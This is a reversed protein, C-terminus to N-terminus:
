DSGNIGAIEGPRHDVWKEGDWRRMRELMQDYFLRGKEPNAPPRTDDNRTIRGAM